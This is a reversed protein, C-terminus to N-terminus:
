GEMALIHVGERSGVENAVGLQIVCDIKLILDEGGVLYHTRRIWVLSDNGACLDDDQNFFVGENYVIVTVGGIRDCM